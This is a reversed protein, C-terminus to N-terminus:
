KAILFIVGAVLIVGLVLGVGKNKSDTILTLNTLPVLLGNYLIGDVNKNMIFKSTIEGEIIQGAKVSVVTRVGDKVTEGLRMDNKVKYKM